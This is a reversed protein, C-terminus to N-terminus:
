KGLRQKYDGGWAHIKYIKAFVPEKWATKQIFLDFHSHCKNILHLIGTIKYSLLM